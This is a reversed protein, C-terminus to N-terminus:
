DLTPRSRAFACCNTAALPRNDHVIALEQAGVAGAALAQAADAKREIARLPEAEVFGGVLGASVQVGGVAARAMSSEDLGAV